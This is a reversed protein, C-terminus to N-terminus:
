TREANRTLARSEFLGVIEQRTAFVAEVTARNQERIEELMLLIRGYRTSSPPLERKSRKALMPGHTM